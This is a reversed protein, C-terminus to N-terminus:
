SRELGSYQTGLEIPRSGPLVLRDPPHWPNLLQVVARLPLCALEWTQGSLQQAGCGM